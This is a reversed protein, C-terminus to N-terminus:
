DVCSIRFRADRLNVLLSTFLRLFFRECSRAAMLQLPACNLCAFGGGGNEGGIPRKVSSRKVCLKNSQITQRLLKCTQAWFTCAFSGSM